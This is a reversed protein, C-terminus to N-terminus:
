ETNLSASFKISPDTKSFLFRFVSFFLHSRGIKGNRWGSRRKTGSDNSRMPMLFRKVSTHVLVFKITDHWHSNVSVRVFVRVFSLVLRVVRLFHSFRAIDDFLPSLDRLVTRKSM